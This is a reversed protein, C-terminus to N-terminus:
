QALITELEDLEALARRWGQEADGELATVAAELEDLAAKQAAAGAVAAAYAGSGPESERSELVSDTVTMTVNAVRGSAHPALVVAPGSVNVHSNTVEVTLDRLTTMSANAHPRILVGGAGTLTFNNLVIRFGEGDSTDGLEVSVTTNVLVCGPAIRAWRGAIANLPVAATPAVRLSDCPITREAAAAAAAPLAALLVCRLMTGARLPCPGDRPPPRHHM